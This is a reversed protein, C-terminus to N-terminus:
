ASPPARSAGRPGRGAASVGRRGRSDFLPRRSPPQGDAGGSRAMLSPPAGHFRELAFRDHCAWTLLNRRPSVRILSVADPTAPAPSGQYATSLRRTPPPPPPPVATFFFFFLFRALNIARMSNISILLVHAYSATRCHGTSPGNGLAPSRWCPRAPFGPSAAASPAVHQSLIPCHSGTTRASPALGLWPNTTITRRHVALRSM